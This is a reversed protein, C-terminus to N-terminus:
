VITCGSFAHNVDVTFHYSLHPSLSFRGPPADGEVKMAWLGNPFSPGWLWGKESNDHEVLFRQLVVKIVDEVRWLAGGTKEWTEVTVSTTFMTDSLENIRVLKLREGIFTNENDAYSIEGKANTGIKGLEVSTGLSFTGVVAELPIDIKQMSFPFRGLPAKLQAATLEMPDARASPRLLARPPKCSIDFVLLELQVLAANRLKKCVPKHSPWSLVQCTESSYHAVLCRSCKLPAELGCHLCFTELM